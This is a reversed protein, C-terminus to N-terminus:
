RSAGKKKGFICGLDARTQEAGINAPAVRNCFDPNACKGWTSKRGWNPTWDQCGECKVPGARTPKCIACDERGCDKRILKIPKM